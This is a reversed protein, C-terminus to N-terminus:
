GGHLADARELMRRCWRRESIRLALLAAVLGAWALLALLRVSIPIAAPWVLSAAPPVSAAVLASEVKGRARRLRGYELHAEFLARVEHRHEDARGPLSMM